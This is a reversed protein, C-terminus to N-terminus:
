YGAFLKVLGASNSSYFLQYCSSSVRKSLLLSYSSNEVAFAGNTVHRVGRDIGHVKQHIDFHLCAAELNNSRDNRGALLCVSISLYNARDFRRRQEWHSCFIKANGTCKCIFCVSKKRNAVPILPSVYRQDYDFLFERAIGSRSLPFLFERPVGKLEGDIGTETGHM